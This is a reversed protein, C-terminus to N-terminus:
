MGANFREEGPSAEEAPSAQSPRRCFYQGVDVMEPMPKNLDGVSGAAMMGGEEEHKKRAGEGAAAAACLSFRSQWALTIFEGRGKYSGSNVRRGGVSLQRCSVVTIRPRRGM